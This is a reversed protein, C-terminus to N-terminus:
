ENVAAEDDGEPVANQSQSAPLAKGAQRASYIKGPRGVQMGAPETLRDQVGSYLALYQMASNHWGFDQQMATQQLQAWDAPKNFLAIARLLADHL